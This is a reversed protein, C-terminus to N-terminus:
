IQSELLVCTELHSTQPFFDMPYVKNISWSESCLDKLDRVLTEPNCSIYLLTKLKNANTKLVDRVTSSLGKRPPDIMGIVFDEKVLSLIEPLANEVSSNFAKVHKLNNYEINFNALEHSAKNDEILIVKKFLKELSIGFLGVGSYLDLLTHRPFTELLNTLFTIVDPLIHLNAQFFTEMAYHIKRGQISTYMYEHPKMKLSGKGIGGWRVKLTDDSRVTLNARKYKPPWMAMAEKKLQPIFDSIEKRAIPCSEIELIRKEGKPTYGMVFDNNKLKRITLDIRHRFHYPTPSPLVDQILSPDIPYLEDFLSLLHKKKLTLQESYSLNQHSCGGCTGFFDCLPTTNLSLM